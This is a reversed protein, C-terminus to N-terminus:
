CQLALSVGGRLIICQGFGLHLLCVFFALFPMQKSVHSAPWPFPHFKFKVAERPIGINIGFNQFILGETKNPPLVTSLWGLWWLCHPDMWLPSCKVYLVLSSSQPLLSLLFSLTECFGLMRKVTIVYILGTMNTLHYLMNASYLIWFPILAEELKKCVNSPGVNSHWCM